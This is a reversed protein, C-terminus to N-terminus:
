MNEKNQFARVKPQRLYDEPHLNIGEAAALPRLRWSRTHKCNFLKGWLFSAIILLTRIPKQRHNTQGCMCIHCWAMGGALDQTRGTRLSFKSYVRQIVRPSLSHVQSPTEASEAWASVGEISILLRRLPEQNEDLSNRRPRSGSLLTVALSFRVLSWRTSGGGSKQAAKRYMRITEQVDSM